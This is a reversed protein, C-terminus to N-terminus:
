EGGLRPAILLRYSGDELSVTEAVQLPRKTGVGTDIFVHARILANPVALGDSSRVIGHVPIPPDLRYDRVVDEGGANMLLEPEVLWAFGTEASAKVQMDYHGPDVSMSFAGGTGTVTEQSRAGPEANSRARALITVGTALEHSFTTVEGRLGIQPPVILAEISTFEESVLAEASVIGWSKAVDLPPTVSITYFGPLLDAGFRGEEDTTASGSFSGELGLQGGFIGTSLFRVTAGPVSVDNTDRVRGTFRVPTLRPIYVRKEIPDNAFALVPDVSVSPFPVNGAGSTVRILYDSSSTGIRIAFRGNEDTEAISSIVRLTERDIARVQLGAEAHEAEGEVSLVEAQLTCGVDLASVCPDVLNAPFALDFRLPDAPDGGRVSLVLYLPPLSRVAPAEAQATSTLTDSSPLITVDYTEGAVLLASFDYGDAQDGGAAERLTSVEVVAPSLSAVPAAMQRVFRLTAPVRAGDWRVMGRVERTEPLSLDRTTSGSVAKPAFAWSMPITSQVEPAGRLVEIALEVSAGSDDICIRGDCVGEVCSTDDVCSNVITLADVTGFDCGVLAVLIWLARM